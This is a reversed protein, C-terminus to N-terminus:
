AAPRSMLLCASSMLAPVGALYDGPVASRRTRDGFDQGRPSDFLGGAVFSQFSGACPSAARTGDILFTADGAPQLLARILVTTVGLALVM